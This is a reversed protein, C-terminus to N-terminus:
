IEEPDDKRSDNIRSLGLRKPKSFMQRFFYSNKQKPVVRGKNFLRIGGPAPQLSPPPGGEQDGFNGAQITSNNNAGKTHKVSTGSNLSSKREYTKAFSRPERGVKGSSSCDGEDLYKLFLVNISEELPNSTSARRLQDLYEPPSGENSSHLITM